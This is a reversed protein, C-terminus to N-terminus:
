PVRDDGSPTLNLRYGQGRKTEIAGPLGLEELRRRVRAVNVTLTNDDVFETDDWLAELLEERSVIEGAREALLWLLRFEKPTLESEKEERAVRNTASNLLLGGVRLLQPDRGIAYEGYTRRLISNVKALVLELTFPKTIYDDGGNELARVQDIDDDRASIFVIPVKSVTRIQRCWYYGDFRPLNIDLIVLDPKLRLFEEKIQGFDRALSVRHGYRELEEALIAAIKTDDEVIMVHYAQM